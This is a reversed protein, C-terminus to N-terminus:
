TMMYIKLNPSEHKWSFKIEWFPYSDTGDKEKIGNTGNPHCKNFHKQISPMVSSKTSRLTLLSDTSSIVKCALWQLLTLYKGVSVCWSSLSVVKSSPTLSVEVLLRCKLKIRCYSILCFLLLSPSQPLYIHTHTHICTYIDDHFHLSSIFLIEHYLTPLPLEHFMCACVNMILHGSYQLCPALHM